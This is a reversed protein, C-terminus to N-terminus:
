QSRRYVQVQHRLLTIKTGAKEFMFRKAPSTLRRMRFTLEHRKQEEARIRIRGQGSRWINPWGFARGCLGRERHGAVVMAEEAHRTKMPWKIKAFAAL